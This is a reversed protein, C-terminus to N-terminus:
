GVTIAGVIEVSNWHRLGVEGGSVVSKQWPSSPGDPGTFPSEVAAVQRGDREWFGIDPLGHKFSDAEFERLYHFQTLDRFVLITRGNGEVLIPHAALGLLDRQQALKGNDSKAM